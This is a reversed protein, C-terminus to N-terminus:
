AAPSRQQVKSGGLSQLLGAVCERLSMPAIPKEMAISFGAQQLRDPDTFAVDASLAMIPTTRFEGLARLKAAVTFGDLIPMQLDLIFLDPLYRLAQRLVEEGDRAALVDWGCRSLICRLLERGSASDDAILIRTARSEERM